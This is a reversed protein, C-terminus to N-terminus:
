WYSVFNAVSMHWHSVKINSLYNDAHVILAVQALRAVVAAEHVQAVPVARQVAVTQRCQAAQLLVVAEHVQAVQHAVAYVQEKLAVAVEALYLVAQHVAAIATAQYRAVVVIPRHLVVIVQYLAVEM